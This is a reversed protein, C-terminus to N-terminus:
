KLMKSLTLFGNVENKAQVEKSRHNQNSDTYPSWGNDPHTLFGLQWQTNKIKEKNATPSLVLM